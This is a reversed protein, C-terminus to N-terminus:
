STSSTLRSKSSRIRTSVFWQASHLVIFVFSVDAAFAAYVRLNEVILTLVSMKGDGMTIFMLPLDLFFVFAFLYFTATILQRLNAARQLVSALAQTRTGASEIAPRKSMSGLRILIFTASYLAYFSVIVLIVLFLRPFAPLSLWIDRLGYSELPV